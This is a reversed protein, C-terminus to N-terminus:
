AVETELATNFAAVIPGILIHIFKSFPLYAFFTTVLIAHVYWLGGYISAWDLPIPRLVSSILFGAFSFAALEPRLATALIRVGEVVFGMVFIAGLLAIAVTDQGGTILRPDKTVYRRIIALIAGVIVAMGLSDYFIAVAPSNKNVLTMTLPLTPALWTLLWTSAGFLMRFAMGLFMLAHSLWQIKRRRFLQQHLVGDMVFSWLLVFLRPTTIIDLFALLLHWLRARLSLGQQGVVSGQLWISVVMLMGLGFIGLGVWSLGDRVIPSADHCTLCLVSRPPLETAPVAFVNDTSHCRKCDVNRIVLALQPEDPPVGEATEPLVVHIRGTSPNHEVTATQLHCAACDVSLHAEGEAVHGALNYSMGPKNSTWHGTQENHCAICDTDRTPMRELDHPYNGSAQHCDICDVWTIQNNHATEAVGSEPHCVGCAVPPVDEYYSIAESHCSVCTNADYSTHDYDSDDLNTIEIEPGDWRVHCGLCDDWGTVPHSIQPAALMGPTAHCVRCDQNEHQAHDAALLPADDSGTRHCNVCDEFSIDEEDEAHPIPPQAVTIPPDSWNWSLTGWSFVLCLLLLAIRKM